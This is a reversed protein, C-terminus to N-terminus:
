GFPTPRGQQRVSVRSRPFLRNKLLTHPRLPANKRKTACLQGALAVIEIAHCPDGGKEVRAAVGGRSESM